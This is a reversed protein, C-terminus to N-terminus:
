LNNSTNAMDYNSHKYSPKQSCLDGNLESSKDHSSEWRKLESGINTETRYRPMCPGDVCCYRVVFYFM